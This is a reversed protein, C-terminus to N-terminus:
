SLVSGCAVCHGAANRLRMTHGCVPCPTGGAWLGEWHREILSRLTSDTAGVAASSAVARAVGAASAEGGWGLQPRLTTTM